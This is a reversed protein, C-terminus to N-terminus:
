IKANIRDVESISVSSKKVSPDVVYVLKYLKLYKPISRLGPVIPFLVVFFLAILGNWIIFGLGNSGGPLEVHAIAPVILYWPGVLFGREKIMGWQDDTLGNKIATNLMYPQDYLWINTYQYVNGPSIGQFYTELYGNKAIKLIAQAIQPVPGFDGTLQDIKTLTPVPTIGMSNGGMGNMDVTQRIAKDYNMAWKQQQKTSAALYQNLANNEITTLAWSASRLPDIVLRMAPHDLGYEKTNTYSNSTGDLEQSVAWITGGPQMSSVQEITATPWDPSGVAFGLIVVLVIVLMGVIPYRWFCHTVICFKTESKALQKTSM